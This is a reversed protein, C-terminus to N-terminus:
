LKIPIVIELDPISFGTRGVKINELGEKLLLAEIKTIRDRAHIDSPDDDNTPSFTATICPINKAIINVYDLDEDIYDVDYIKFNFGLEKHIVENLHKYFLEFKQLTQKINNM